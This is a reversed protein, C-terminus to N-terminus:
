LQNLWQQLNKLQLALEDAKKSCRGSFEVLDAIRESLQSERSSGDSKTTSKTASPVRCTVSSLQKRLRIVLDANANADSTVKTLEEQYKAETQQALEKWENEKVRAQQVSERYQAEIDALKKDYHHATALYGTTGAIFSGLLFAGIGTYLVGSINM